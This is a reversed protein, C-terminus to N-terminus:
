AHQKRYQFILHEHAQAQHTELRWTALSTRAFTLIRLHKASFGFETKVVVQLEVKLARQCRQDRCAGAKIHVHRWVDM